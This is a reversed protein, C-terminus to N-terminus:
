SDGLIRSEDIHLAKPGLFVLTMAGIVRSELYANVEDLSVSSLEDLRNELTRTKM